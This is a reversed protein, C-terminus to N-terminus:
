PAVYVVATLHSDPLLVTSQSSAARWDEANSRWMFGVFTQLLTRLQVAAFGRHKAGKVYQAIFLM